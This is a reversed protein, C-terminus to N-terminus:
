IARKSERAPRWDGAELWKELRYGGFETEDAIRSRSGAREVLWDLHWGGGKLSAARSRFEPAPMLWAAERELDVLAVYDEFGTRLPASPDSRLMWHMGLAGQRGRRHPGPRVLVKTVRMRGGPLLLAYGVPLDPLRELGIGHPELRNRLLVEAQRHVDQGSM